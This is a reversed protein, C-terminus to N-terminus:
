ARVCAPYPLCVKVQLRANVLCGVSDQNEDGESDVQEDKNRQRYGKGATGREHEQDKLRVVAKGIDLDRVYLQLQEKRHLRASCSCPTCGLTTRVARTANCSLTLEACASASM